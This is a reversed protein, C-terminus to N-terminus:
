SSTRVNVKSGVLFLLKSTSPLWTLYKMIASSSRPLSGTRPSLTAPAQLSFLFMFRGRFFVSYTERFLFRRKNFTKAGLDSVPQSRISSVLGLNETSTKKETFHTERLRKFAMRFVHTKLKNKFIDLSITCRLHAPLSKWLEPSAAHFPRAGLSPANEWLLM